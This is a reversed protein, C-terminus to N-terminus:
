LFYIYKACTQAFGGFFANSELRPLVRGYSRDRSTKRTVHNKAFMAPLLIRVTESRAARSRIWRSRCQEASRRIDGAGGDVAFEALGASVTTSIRRLIVLWVRLHWVTGPRREHFAFARLAGFVSTKANLYLDGTEPARLRQALKYATRKHPPCKM